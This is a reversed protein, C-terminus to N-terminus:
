PHSPLSIPLTAGIAHLLSAGAHDFWRHTRAHMDSEAFVHGTVGSLIGSMTFDANPIPKFDEANILTAGVFARRTTSRPPCLGYSEGIPPVAGPACDRFLRGLEGEDALDRDM